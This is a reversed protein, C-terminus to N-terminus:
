SGNEVKKEKGFQRNLKSVIPSSILGFSGLPRGAPLVRLCVIENDFEYPVEWVGEHSHWIADELAPSYAHRKQEVKPLRCYTDERIIWISNETLYTVEEGVLEIKKM